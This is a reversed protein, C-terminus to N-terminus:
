LFKRKLHKVPTILSALLEYTFSRKISPDPIINPRPLSFIEPLPTTIPLGKEVKYKHRHLVSKLNAGASSRKLYMAHHLYNNTIYWNQPARERTSVGDQDFFGELPYDGQYHLGQIKDRNVLRTVLHGHQGFLSYEGISDQQHHYIDGLLDYRRVVIGEFKDSNVQGVIEKALHTSYIEDGDILWIWPNKSEQIQAQRVATLEKPTSIKITTLNIKPDKISRIIELTHDTSGTDTILLTDVYPLISNIAFWIWQDENKVVMHAAISTV